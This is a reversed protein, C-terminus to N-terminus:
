LGHARRGCRIFRQQAGLLQERLEDAERIAKFVHANEPTEWDTSYDPYIRYQSTDRRQFAHQAMHWVFADAAAWLGQRAEELEPAHFEHDADNWEHVFKRLDHLDSDAYSLDFPHNAVFQMTASDTGILRVAEDFLVRDAAVLDPASVELARKMDASKERATALEAKVDEMRGSWSRKTRRLHVVAIVLGVTVLAWGVIQGIPWADDWRDRGWGTQAELAALGVLGIVLGGITSAGTLKGNYWRRSSGNM